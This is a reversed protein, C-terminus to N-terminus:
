SQAGTPGGAAARQAETNSPLKAKTESLEARLRKIEELAELGHRLLRRATHMDATANKDAADAQRQWAELQQRLEM